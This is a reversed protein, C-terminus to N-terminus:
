PGVTQAAAGVACMGAIRTLMSLPPDTSLSGMDKGLLRYLPHGASAKRGQWAGSLGGWIACKWFHNRAFGQRSVIKMGFQLEYSLNTFHAQTLALHAHM